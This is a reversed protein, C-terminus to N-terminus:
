ECFGRTFHGDGTTDQTMDMWDVGGDRKKFIWNLIIKGDVSVDELHNRGEPKGVLVRYALQLVYYHGQVNFERELNNTKVAFHNRNELM